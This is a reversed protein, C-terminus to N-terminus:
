AEETAEAEETAMADETAVAEETAMDAAPAEETAVGSGPMMGMDALNTAEVLIAPMVSDAEDVTGAAVILYSTNENLTVDQLDFLVTNPDGAATVQIDYTDSDIGFHFIGDSDGTTGPFNLGTIQPVGNILIDVGPGDEIAHVFTLRSVGSTMASLDQEFVQATATGQAISGVAAVTYWNNGSITLDFPGLTDDAEVGLGAPVVAVSYTGEPVSMWPTVSPYTLGQVDTLEGNIYIDVPGADPSLHLIRFHAQEIGDADETAMPQETAVAPAEETAPQAMTMTGDMGVMMDFSMDGASVTPMDVAETAVPEETADQAMVFITSSLLLLLLGLLISSKRM